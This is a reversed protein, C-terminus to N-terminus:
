LNKLIKKLKKVQVSDLLNQKEAYDILEIANNIAMRGSKLAYEASSRSFSTTLVIEKMSFGRSHLVLVNKQIDTLM